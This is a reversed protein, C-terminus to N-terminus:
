SKYRTEIDKRESSVCFKRCLWGFLAGFLWGYIFAWATGIIAGAFSMTFGPYAIKLINLHLEKLAPNSLEIGWAMCLFFFAISIVGVVNGMRTVNLNNM